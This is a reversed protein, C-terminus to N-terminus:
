ASGLWRAPNSAANFGKGSYLTAGAAPGRLAHLARHVFSERRKALQGLARNQVQCARATAEFERYQQLMEASCNRAALETLLGDGGAAVGHERLLQMRAATLRELQVLLQQKDQLIQEVDMGDILASRVQGLILLLARLLSHEEELRTSLAREFGADHMM